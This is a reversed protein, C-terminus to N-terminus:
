ARVGPQVAGPTRSFPLPRCDLLPAAGSPLHYTLCLLPDACSHRTSAGRPADSGPFRRGRPDFGHHQEAGPNVLLGEPGLSAPRRHLRLSAGCAHNGVRLGLRVAPPSQLGWPAPGTGFPPGSVVLLLNWSYHHIGRVVDGFPISFQAYDVSDYAAGPSPSYYFAM